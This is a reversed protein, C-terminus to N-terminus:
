PAILLGAQLAFREKRLFREKWHPSLRGSSMPLQSQQKYRRRRTDLWWKTPTLACSCYTSLVTQPSALDRANGSPTTSSGTTNGWFKEMWPSLIVRKTRWRWCTLTIATTSTRARQKNLAIFVLVFMLRAYKM